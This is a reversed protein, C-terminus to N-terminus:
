GRPLFKRLKRLGLAALGMGFLSLSSPIPVEAPRLSATGSYRLVDNYGACFYPIDPTADPCLARRSKQFQVGFLFQNEPSFKELFGTKDNSSSSGARTSFGIQYDWLFWERDGETIGGYERIASAYMGNGWADFQDYEWNSHDTPDFDASLFEDLESDFPTGQVFYMRPQELGYFQWAAPETPEERAYDADSLDFRLLIPFQEHVDEITESTPLLVIGSDTQEFGFSVTTRTTVTVDFTYTSAHANGFTLLLLALAATQFMIKKM